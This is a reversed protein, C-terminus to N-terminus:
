TTLLSYVQGGGKQRITKGDFFLVFEYFIGSPPTACLQRSPCLAEGNLTRVSMMCPDEPTLSNQARWVQDDFGNATPEPSFRSERISFTSGPTSSMGDGSSASSTRVSQSPLDKVAPQSSHTSDFSVSRLSSTDAHSEQIYSRLQKTSPLLLVYIQNAM